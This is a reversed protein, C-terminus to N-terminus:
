KALDTASNKLQLQSHTQLHGFYADIERQSTFFFHPEFLAEGWLPRHYLGDMWTHRLYQVFKQSARLYGKAGGGSKHYLRWLFHGPERELVEAAPPCNAWAEQVLLARRGHISLDDDGSARIGAPTLGLFAELKSTRDPEDRDIYFRPDVILGILASVMQHDLSTIFSLSPWAPHAELFPRMEHYLGAKGLYALCYSTFEKYTVEHWGGQSPAGYWSRMALLIEESEATTKPNNRYSLPSCVELNDLHKALKRQFLRCILEANNPHGLLRIRRARCAPMTLFNDVDTQSCEPLCSGNLYWVVGISDVHLKLVSHEGAM